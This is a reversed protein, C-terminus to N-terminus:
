PQAARWDRGHARHKPLMNALLGLGVGYLLLGLLAPVGHAVWPNDSDVLDAFPALLVDNADDVLERVSGHERERAKEEEPTPAVTDRSVDSGGLADDLAHQQTRSGQDIQDVAFLVFGLLVIGSTVIALLRIVSGMTM